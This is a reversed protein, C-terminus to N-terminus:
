RVWHLYAAVLLRLIVCRLCSVAISSCFVSPRGVTNLVNIKCESNEFSVEAKHACLAFTDDPQVGIHWHIKGVISWGYVLFRQKQVLLFFFLSNKTARRKEQKKTLNM